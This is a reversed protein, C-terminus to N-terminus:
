GRERVEALEALIADAMHRPPTSVLGDVHRGYEEWTAFREGCSCEAGSMSPRPAHARLVVKRGVGTGERGEDDLFKMM